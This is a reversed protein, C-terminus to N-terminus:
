VKLVTSDEILRILKFVLHPHEERAEKLATRVEKYDSWKWVGKDTYLSWRWPQKEIPGAPYYLSDYFKIVYSKSVM